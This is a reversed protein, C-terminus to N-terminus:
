GFGNRAQMQQMNNVNHNPHAYNQQVSAMTVGLTLGLILITSKMSNM